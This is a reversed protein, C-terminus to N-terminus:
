VCHLPCGKSCQENKQKGYKRMTDISMDTYNLDVRTQIGEVKGKSTFQWLAWFPWEYAPPRLGMHGINAGYSAIWLGNDNKAVPMWSHSRLTSKNLYIMPKFGLKEEVGRLWSLCWNVPDDHSIEWDLVVIEGQQINGVHDCFHAVEREVNGGRAFHYYGCLLGAQRAEKKNTTFRPDVFSDAETCKIIAFEYGAQKVKQWEIYGQWHSVDIGKM